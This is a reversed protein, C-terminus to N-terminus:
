DEEKARSRQWIDWALDSNVLLDNKEQFYRPDESYETFAVLSCRCNYVEEPEGDPDGPYMLGNSFEEDLERIQGDLFSHSERTRGDHTALWMNRVHLGLVSAREYAYKKGANEASTAMTRANRIAASKDMKTVQELRKAIGKMSDGQLIGQTVVSNIHQRNWVLDRNEALKRATPSGPAAQPLLDPNNRLLLTVAERNYLTFSTDIGTLKEVEFTGANLNLGFIDPLIGRAMGMAAQDANVAIRALTDVLETYRRHHTLAGVRWKKYDAESLVGARVLARKAADRAEYAEFYKEAREQLELAAKAYEEGIRQELEELLSNTAKRAPNALALLLDRLWTEM